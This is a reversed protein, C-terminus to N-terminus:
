AADEKTRDALEDALTKIGSPRFTISVNGNAGDYDVREVLSQLRWAIRKVLWVKNGARTEEGFVEAYRRRLERVTMRQLTAVEKGVNLNM